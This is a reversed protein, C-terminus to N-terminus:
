GLPRVQEAVPRDEQVTVEYEVPQGDPLTRDIGEILISDYYFTLEPGGDAPVITGYGHDTHFTKVTGTAM